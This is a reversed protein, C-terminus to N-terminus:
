FELEEERAMVLPARQVEVSLQQEDVLDALTREGLLERLGEFLGERLEDVRKGMELPREQQFLMVVESLRVRDLPRLPMVQQNKGRGGGTSVVIKHQILVEIIQRVLAGSLGTRNVLEAESIPGRGAAFASVVPALVEVCVLPNHLAAGRQQAKLIDDLDWGERVLYRFNQVCYAIESGVLIVLWTVYVWLMFIPALGLAGYLKDYSEVLVLNVYQNFGWKALEFSSATVVGGVLAARWTVLANPLIKNMLMFVLLAYIFPLLSSFFGTDIGLRSSVFVQASATQVISLMLLIPGLTIMTYFMLFKYVLPRNHGGQWIHTLTQEISNFLFISIVLLTVGSIGGMTSVGKSSLQQLYVVIGSGVAPFLQQLYMALDSQGSSFMGFAALLATAVSLFPVISLVSFFALSSAKSAAQDRALERALMFLLQGTSALVREWWRLQREQGERYCALVHAIWARVRQVPLRARLREFLSLESM